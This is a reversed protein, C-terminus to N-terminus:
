IKRKKKSNIKVEDIKLKNRIIEHFGRTGKGHYGEILVFLDSVKLKYEVIKDHIQKLFLCKESDFTSYDLNKKAESAAMLQQLFKLVFDGKFMGCGWNGTSIKNFDINLDNLNQISNGGESKEKKNGEQVFM